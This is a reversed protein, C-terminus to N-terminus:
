ELDELSLAFQVETTSCSLRKAIQEITAGSNFLSIIKAKLGGNTGGGRDEVTPIEPYFADTHVVPVETYSPGGDLSNMEVSNDVPSDFLTGQSSIEKRGLPTIELSRADVDDKNYKSAKSSSTASNKGYATAARKAVPTSRSASVKESLHAVGANQKELDMLIKIRKDAEKLVSDLTALRSEVITIDRNTNNNLDAVIKNIESKAASIVDDVTFLNKFKRLFIIWSLINFICLFAIFFIM